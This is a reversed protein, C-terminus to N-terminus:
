QQSQPLSPSPAPQPTATTTTTTTASCTISARPTTQLIKGASSPTVTRTPYKAQLKIACGDLIRHLEFLYRTEVEFVDVAIDPLDDIPVLPAQPTAPAASLKDFYERMQPWQTDVFPRLPEMYDEKGLGPSGSNNAIMQLVKAILVLNRRSRVSPPIDSPIIGVVEPSVIAPSFVRLVVFGSVLQCVHEPMYQRATAAVLACITRLEAPMRAVTSEDTIRSVLTVVLGQIIAMRRAVVTAVTQGYLQLVERNEVKQPDIELDMDQDSIV